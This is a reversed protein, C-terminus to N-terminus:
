VARAKASDGWADWGVRGLEHVAELRMESVAPSGWRLSSLFPDMGGGMVVLIRVSVPSSRRFIGRVRM